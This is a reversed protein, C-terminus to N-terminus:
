TGGGLDPPPPVLVPIESSIKKRSRLRDDKAFAVNRDRRPGQM